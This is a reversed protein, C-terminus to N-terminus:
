RKEKEPAFRDKTDQPKSDFDIDNEWGAKLNLVDPYPIVDEPQKKALLDGTDWKGNRNKDVIIRFTYKALKLRNLNITAATVPKNYITDKDAFVMLLYQPDVYKPPMHVRVKGYDDDEKTKFVYKAPNADAGGTDKAFGKALKLTYQTNERWATVLHVINTHLTDKKLTYAATQPMGNSDWTLTIRSQTLTPIKNFTLSVSDNIDFSKKGPNSTDVNVAYDFVDKAPNKSDSKRANNGSLRNGKANASSDTKKMKSSDPTEAFVRLVIPAVASDGPMVTHDNFAVMEDSGDYILNGNVDHIAFIRFSKKPLGKFSFNGTANVRAVYKPKKRVVVSDNEAAYYLVIVSGTDPRGTAADLVKGDLQMSDFYNGTSFTYTYNAFINGEHLDRVAKGLSLRYTTNDELLTDAIKVIVKKGNVTASPQIPLLPSIQIEKFADTLTLYEDFTLEIRKARTNKLSDAPTVQKLKPPKTDKRGGMPATINACGAGTVLLILLFLRIVNRSM